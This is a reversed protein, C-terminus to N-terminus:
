SYLSYWNPGLSCPGAQPSGLRSSVVCVFVCWAPRSSMIQLKWSSIDCTHQECRAQSTSRSNM